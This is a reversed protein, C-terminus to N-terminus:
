RAHASPAARSGPVGEAAVLHGVIAGYDAPTGDWGCAITDATISLPANVARIHPWGLDEMAPREPVEIVLRGRPDRFRPRQDPGLEIRYGYEHIYRHHSSCLLASNELSTEGGDAWHKIHHGELFMRNTCGPYSCATDRKRLARKLAGAMTRRKRGVSLPTGREDEIVEVVGADCSLRRAAESSVFSEGIEGVEGVEVPDSAGGRLSSEPITLVIEIPSREPREGRLYGQAVSVLADARLFPRRAADVRQQLGSSAREATLDSSSARATSSAAASEGRTGTEAIRLADAEDLLRDLLSRDLLSRHPIELSPSEASDNISSTDFDGPATSAAISGPATAELASAHPLSEASDDTPCSALDPSAGHTRPSGPATTDPASAHPLSEASDSSQCAAAPPSLSIDVVATAPSAETSGSVQAIPRPEAVDNGAPRDAERTLQAAAHDLMAWVLEAEEPHLVAEIKVMGDATDRRRVYRRQEDGLAHPAEGHRQV